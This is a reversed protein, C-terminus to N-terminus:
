EEEDPYAKSLDPGRVLSPQHDVWVRHLYVTCTGEGSTARALAVETGLTHVMLDPRSRREGQRLNRAVRQWTAAAEQVTGLLWDEVVKAVPLTPLISRSSRAGKTGGSPSGVVLLEVGRLVVLVRGFLVPDDPLPLLADGLPPGFWLKYSTGPPALPAQVCRHAVRELMGVAVGFGNSVSTAFKPRMPYLKQQMTRISVGLCM